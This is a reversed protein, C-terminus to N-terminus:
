FFSSRRMTFCSYTKPKERSNLPHVFALQRLPHLSKPGRSPRPRMM